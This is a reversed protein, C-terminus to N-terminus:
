SHLTTYGYGDTFRSLVAGAWSVCVCMCVCLHCTVGILFAPLVLILLSFFVYHLFAALVKFKVIVDCPIFPLIAVIIVVDYCILHAFISYIPHLLFLLRLWVSFVAISSVCSVRNPSPSRLRTREVFLFTYLFWKAASHFPLAVLVVACWPLAVCKDICRLPISADRSFSQNSQDPTQTGARKDDACLVLTRNGRCKKHCNGHVPSKRRASTETRVDTHIALFNM